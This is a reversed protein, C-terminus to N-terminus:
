ECNPLGWCWNMALLTAASHALAGAVVFVHVIQHNHRAIDFAGFKWGEPIRSMYFSAGVAQLFERDLKRYQDEGVLEVRDVCCIYFAGGLADLHKPNQQALRLRQVIDGKVAM